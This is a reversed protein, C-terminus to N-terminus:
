PSLNYPGFVVNHPTNPSMKLPRPTPNLKARPTPNYCTDTAQLSSRSERGAHRPPRLVRRPLIADPHLVTDISNTGKYGQSIRNLQVQCM